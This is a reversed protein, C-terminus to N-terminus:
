FITIAATVHIFPNEWSDFSPKIIPLGFIENRNSKNLLLQREINEPKYYKFLESKKFGQTKGSACRDMQSPQWKM